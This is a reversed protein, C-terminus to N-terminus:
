AESPLVEAPEVASSNERKPQSDNMKAIVFQQMECLADFLEGLPSTSDCQLKYIRDEKKVELVTETKLM